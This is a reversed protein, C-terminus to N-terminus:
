MFLDALHESATPLGDLCTEISRSFDEPIGKRAPVDWFSASCAGARDNSVWQAKSCEMLADRQARRSRGPTIESRRLASRRGSGSLHGAAYAEFLRRIEDRVRRFVALQEELKSADSLAVAITM